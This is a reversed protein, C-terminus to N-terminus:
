WSQTRQHRIRLSVFDGPASCRCMTRVYNRQSGKCTNLDEVNQVVGLNDGVHVLYVNVKGSVVSTPFKIEMSLIQCTTEM